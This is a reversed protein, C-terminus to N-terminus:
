PTPFRVARARGSAPKRPGRVAPASRGLADVAPGVARRLLMPIQPRVAVAKGEVMHFEFRTIDARKVYPPNQPGHYFDVFDKAIMAIEKWSYRGPLYMDTDHNVDIWYLSFVATDKAPAYSFVLSDHAPARVSFLTDSIHTQQVTFLNLSSHSSSRLFDRGGIWRGVALTDFFRIGYDGGYYNGKLHWTSETAWREFDSDELYFGSGPWQDKMVLSDQWYAVTRRTEVTHYAISLPAAKAQTLATLLLVAAVFFPKMLVLTAPSEDGALVL